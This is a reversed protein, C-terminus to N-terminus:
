NNSIPHYFNANALLFNPIGQVVEVRCDTYPGIHSGFIDPSLASFNLARIRLEKNEFCSYVYIDFNKNQM